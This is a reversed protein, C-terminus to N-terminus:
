PTGLQITDLEHVIVQFRDDYCTVKKYDTYSEDIAVDGSDHGNFNMRFRKARRSLFPPLTPDQIAFDIKEDSYNLHIRGMTSWHSIAQSSVRRVSVVNGSARDVHCSTQGSKSKSSPDLEYFASTDTLKVEIQSREKSRELQDRARTWLNAARKRRSTSRKFRAIEEDSPVRDNFSLLTWLEKESKGPDYRAVYCVDPKGTRKISLTLTCAWCGRPKDLATLAAKLDDAAQASRLESTTVAQGAQLPPLTVNTTRQTRVVACGPLVALALAAGAPLLRHRISSPASKM